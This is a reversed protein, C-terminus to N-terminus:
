KPPFMAEIANQMERESLYEFLITQTREWVSGSSHMEFLEIRQPLATAPDVFINWRYYLTLSGPAREKWSIEYVDVTEASEDPADSAVQRVEANPPLNGLVLPARTILFMRCNERERPDMRVSTVTEPDSTVTTKWGGNVDYLIREPGTKTVLKGLRRAAWIEQIPEPHHPSLKTIHVNAAQEIAKLIEGVNTGSATPASIFFLIGLVLVAAAALVITANGRFGLGAVAHRVRTGVTTASGSRGPVWEPGRRRVQAGVPHRPPAGGTGEHVSEARDELDYVTTVGSDARELVGYVTCHLTQLKDLCTPCSRIHAAFESRNRDMGDPDVPTTGCPVVYDFVDAPSVERGCARPAFATEQLIAETLHQRRRYVEARCHPCRSLHDLIEPGISTLSLSAFAAVAPQMQRCKAPDREVSAPYLRGLRGLQDPTLNLEGLAALDDGCSQCQQIHVTIPTPVRIKSSLLVLSPLFPRVHRCGVEQGLWMLHRSLAEIIESDTPSGRLDMDEQTRCLIEHLHQIRQKCFSCRQVHDRVPEPIDADTHSMLDYYFVEADRCPNRGDSAKM